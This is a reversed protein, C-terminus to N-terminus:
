GKMRTNCQSWYQPWTQGAPIKNAAKAVHWQQACNHMRARAALPAASPQG